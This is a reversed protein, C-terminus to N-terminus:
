HFTVTVAASFNSTGQGGVIDRHWLQFVFFDGPVAANGTALQNLDLAFRVRGVGRANLVAGNYRYVPAAICLEGQGVPTSGPNPGMLYYGFAGPPLRRSYLELDNAGVTASGILELTSGVGTSNPQGDCLADFGSGDVVESFALDYGNSMLNWNPLLQVWQQAAAEYRWVAASLDTLYLDGNAAVEMGLPTTPPSPVGVTVAGDAPDIRVLDGTESWLEGRADVAVPSWTTGVITDLADYTVEGTALDIRVLDRGERISYLVGDWRRDLGRLNGSPITLIPTTSGSAPDVRSVISQQEEFENWNSTLLLFDGTAPDVELGVPSGLGPGGWKVLEVPTPTATDYGDLRWIKNFRGLLFLDQQAVAPAALLLFLSLSRLRPTRM